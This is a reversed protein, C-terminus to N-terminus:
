VVLNRLRSSAYDVLMVLVILVIVVFLLNTVFVRTTTISHGIGRFLRRISSDEAMQWVLALLGRNDRSRSCFSLVLM